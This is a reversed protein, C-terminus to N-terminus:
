GHTGVGVPHTPDLQGAWAETALLTVAPVVSGASDITAANHQVRVLAGSLAHEEGPPTLTVDAGCHSACLEGATM